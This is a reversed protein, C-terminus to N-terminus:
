GKVKLITESIRDLGLYNLMMIIRRNRTESKYSECKLLDPIVSKVYNRLKAVIKRDGIESVRKVSELLIHNIVLFEFDGSCNEPMSKRINEFVALMDLNKSANKNRMTSINDNRYYYLAEDIFAIREARMMAKASFELDEYWLGAPFRIDEIITKKFIKNWVAGAASLKHTQLAAKEYKLNDGEFRYFDCVVIDADECEAKDLMKKYMDPSVYDDADAFGIYEGEAIDLAFNRARGQGGNDVSLVKIIDPNECKYREIIELSSDNSGDNVIIIEFSDLQQGLLCPLSKDLYKEGNYVPMVISLKM